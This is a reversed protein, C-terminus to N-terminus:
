IRLVSLQALDPQPPPPNPRQATLAGARLRVLWDPRRSLAARLLGALIWGGLVAVCLSTMDMAMGPGHSSSKTTMDHGSSRSSAAAAQSPSAMGDGMHASSAAAHAASGMASGSSSDPHGVTHMVFVGLALVVVLLLQGCAGAARIGRHASM